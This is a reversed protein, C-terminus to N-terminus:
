NLNMKNPLRVIRLNQLVYIKYLKEDHYFRGVDAKM